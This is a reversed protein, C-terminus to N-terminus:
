DCISYEKFESNSNMKSIKLCFVMRKSFYVHQKVHHSCYAMGDDEIRSEKARSSKDTNLFIIFVKMLSTTSLIVIDQYLKTRYKIAVIGTEM